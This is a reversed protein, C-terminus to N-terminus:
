RTKCLVYYANVIRNLAKVVIFNYMPSITLEDLQNLLRKLITMFYIVVNVHFKIEMENLLCGAVLM